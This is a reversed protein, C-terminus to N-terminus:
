LSCPLLGEVPTLVQSFAALLAVQLFERSVAAELLHLPGVLAAQRFVQGKHLAAAPTVPPPQLLAPIQAPQLAVARLM